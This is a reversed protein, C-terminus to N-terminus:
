NNLEHLICSITGSSEVNSLAINALHSEYRRLSRKATSTYTTLNRLILAATLRISKTVPGENEDMLEKSNVFDATHRKIAQMASSGTSPLSSTSSTSLAPSATNGRQTQDLNRVITVPSQTSQVNISGTAIRRQVANRLSEQTLHRDIIHTMLSYRKRPVGDCLSPGIGWQCFIEAGADLHDPCHVTCAHHQLDNLSKFKKRPCNRWDCVYLWNIDVSSMSPLPASIPTSNATQSNIVTSAVPTLVTNNVATTNSTNPTSHIVGSTQNQEAILNSEDPKLQNIFEADSVSVNSTKITATTAITTPTKTTTINSNTSNVALPPPPILSTQKLTNAISQTQQIQIVSSSQKQIQTTGQPLIPKKITTITASTSGIQSVVSQIPTQQQPASKSQLTGQMLSSNENIKQTIITSNSQMGTHTLPLTIKQQIISPHQQQQEIVTRIQQQQQTQPQTTIITQSNLQTQQMSPQTQTILTEKIEIARGGGLIVQRKEAPGSIIHQQIISQHQQLQPIQIPPPPTTNQVISVSKGIRSITAPQHTLQQSQVTVQPQHLKITAPIHNLQNLLSPSIQGAQQSTTTAQQAPATQIIQRQIINNNSQTQTAGPPLHQIHTTAGTQPNIFIQQQTPTGIQGHGRQTVIVQQGQHTTMIMKPANATTATIIQQQQQSASSSIPQQQLIIITKTGTSQQQATQTVLVTQTPTTPPHAPQAQQAVLYTQGNPNTALVYQTPPTSHPTTQQMVQQIIQPPPQEIPKQQLIVPVTQLGQETKITAMATPMHQPTAQTLKLQPPQNQFMLQRQVTQLSTHQVKAPVILSPQTNQEPLQQQGQPQPLFPPIDDLEEDELISAAMEAYLNAANKSPTVNQIEDRASESSDLALRKAQEHGINSTDEIKRKIITTPIPPDLLKKDLIEVLMQNAIIVSRGSSDKAVNNGSLPALPPPVSDTITKKELSVQPNLPKITTQGVKVPTNQMLPNNVLQSIATSTVKIPQQSTSAATTPMQSSIQVGNTATLEKQKQQRQNVKNALLSKILSSSPQANSTQITTTPVEEKVITQHITSVINSNPQKSTIEDTQKAISETSTANMSDQMITESKLSSPLTNSEEIKVINNSPLIASNVSNQDGTSVTSITNNVKTAVATTSVAFATEFGVNLQEEEAKIPSKIEQQQILLPQDQIKLKKKIKRGSSLENKNKDTSKPPTQTVKNQIPLPQARVRISIYYFGPLESGDSRRVIAPGVTNTFILRVLRPFQVHGVVSNKGAKQCHSVYMRYLEQQEVRSDNTGAREFTASLWALAYQEDDQTFNQIIQPQVQQTDPVIQQQVQDSVLLQPKTQLPTIHHIQQKQIAANQLNAINQAVLPLMNGPVTEVVRMLICGGAGYSQAEVTILSVLQDVLGKVQMILHCSRVGLSTLAYIAELTFILMMIDNLCLLMCLKEYFNINLCKHIYDENNDNHCLKYLIELSSIIVCRDDSEIGESLTEMLSRSLDDLSPDILDLESAINGAIDLAQSHINGWRTNACMVLFRLLTRNKAFIFLNEEHFSLNRLISLIQLVRQGVYDQTGLGRGLNLFDMSLNEELAATTKLLEIDDEEGIIGAQRLTNEDRYLELIQPKEYLLDQWFNFLSHRRVDMYVFQFLKRMSYDPYVGTHAILADILKPFENVKLTHKMENAMLTCANIAFDQENPLPSLLSLMLKEYPSSKYLNTSLKHVRRREMNVIHQRYNYSMPVTNYGSSNQFISPYRSRSRGSDLLDTAELAEIKDPDEGFYNLREYKELFRRYIHKLAATANVCKDHLKSVIPLVDEWEDRLNVKSFGGREIVETYLMHLNIERGSIKPTHMIPTGRRDHFQQLDKYFEDPAKIPMKGKVSHTVNELKENNVFIDRSSAPPRGRAPTANNQSKAPSSITNEIAPLPQLAKVLEHVSM